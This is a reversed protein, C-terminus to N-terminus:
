FLTGQDDIFERAVQVLGLSKASREISMLPTRESVTISVVGNLWNREVEVRGIWRDEQLFKEIARVNVRAMSDGVDLGLEVGALRVEIESQNAEDSSRIQVEEIDFVKSWGLLYVIALFLTALSTLILLRRERPKIM